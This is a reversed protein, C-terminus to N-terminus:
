NKTGTFVLSDFFESKAVQLNPLSQGAAVRASLNMMIYTKTITNFCWQGENSIPMAGKPTQDSGTQSFLLCSGKDFKKESFITKINKVRGSESDAEIKKKFDTLIEKETTVATLKSIEGHRALGVVSAGSTAPDQGFLIEERSAEGMLWKGTKPLQFNFGVVQQLAGASPAVDTKKPVLHSCSFVILSSLSIVIIKRLM